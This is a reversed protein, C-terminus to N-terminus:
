KLRERERRLFMGPTLVSMGYFETGILKGFDSRDLTLLVDAWALGTFLIPRDKAKEFVTVWDFTVVDPVLVLLQNLQNWTELSETPLVSLNLETERVVYNSTLLMWNQAQAIEFVYHSAGKNSGCAALVVSTDLFINM